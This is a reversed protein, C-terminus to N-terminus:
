FLCIPTHTNEFKNKFSGELDSGFKPNQRFLPYGYSNIKGSNSLNAFYHDTPSNLSDNFNNILKMAGDRTFMVCGTCLVHPLKYLSDTIKTFNYCRGFCFEFYLLDWNVGKSSNYIDDMTTKSDYIEIDDEMVIFKNYQTNEQNDNFIWQYTLLSSKQASSLKSNESGPHKEALEKSIPIIFRITKFGLTDLLKVMHAKRDTRNEMNIVYVPIQSLEPSVKKLDEYVVPEFDNRKYLNTDLTLYKVILFLLLLIGFFLFLQRNYDM